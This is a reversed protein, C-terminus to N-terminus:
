GNYNNGKEETERTAAAANRELIQKQATEIASYYGKLQNIRSAARNVDSVFKFKYERHAVSITLPGYGTWYAYATCYDVESPYFTTGDHLILKDNVFKIIIKPTKTIWVMCGAGAGSMLLGCFIFTLGRWRQYTLLATSLIGVSLIIVGCVLITIYCALMFGPRKAIVEEKM